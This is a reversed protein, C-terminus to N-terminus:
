TIRKNQMSCAIIELADAIRQLQEVQAVPVLLTDPVISGEGGVRAMWDRAIEAARYAEKTYDVVGIQGKVRPKM